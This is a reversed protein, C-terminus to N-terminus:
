RTAADLRRDSRAAERGDALWWARFVIAAVVVTLFEGSAWLVAAAAHQDDLSPYVHPTLPVRTSMLALGLFAHFPVAVLVALLRAGHSMARPLTDASTLPWLFLCGITLVHIHVAAHVVPNRLSLELLPSLYLGVLTVGFAAFGVVPHLLTLAPSSHLARLLRGKIPRTISQLLLTVPAGFGLLLPAVMGLVVHGTMHGVFTSEPLVASGALALIGGGFAWSRGVPWCRNRRRLRVLARAYFVALVVGVAM